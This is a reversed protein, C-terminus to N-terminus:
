HTPSMEDLFKKFKERASLADAALISGDNTLRDLSEEIRAFLLLSSATALQSTRISGFNVVVDTVVKGTMFCRHKHVLFFNHTYGSKLRRTQIKGSVRGIFM